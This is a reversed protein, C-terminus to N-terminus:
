LGAKKELYTLMFDRAAGLLLDRVRTLASRKAEDTTQDIEQNLAAVLEELAAEPSGPWGAFLQLTLPTPRVAIPVDVQDADIVVELYGGRVLERLAAGASGPDDAQEIVGGTPVGRAPAGATQYTDFIASLVRRAELWGLEVAPAREESNQAARKRVQERGAETVAFKRRKGEREDMRVWGREELDDVQMDSPAPQDEPWGPHGVIAPGEGGYHLVFLEPEGAAEDAEVLEALIEHASRM